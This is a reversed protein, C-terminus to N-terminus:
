APEVAWRLSREVARRWGAVLRAREQESMTPEFRRELSWTAAIEEQGSWVGIGLGALFAAGAATTETVVPREVPVGLLDAQFALLDDNRAAGGDVRLVSLRGGADEDMGAAVDRVQYAISDVTARAVHSLGTGRTIGILLGRAAPDWWPAGLGTFAPVLYVGDDHGVGAALREVDAAADIARLGDRLWQVAAGAIFVSGELAYHAAQDDALRWLVTSLSGGDSAVPSTGANRLLFAGTGYTNKADGMAFCAQGFTAAQQDGAIGAIPIARSFLVPDTEAVIGSSSVVRPLVAMPVDFVECLWPDWALRTIDLLSTRSANSVDTLHSRGGTLRWVLWSDITGACLEGAVARARLDPASDLIHAIKTASFYADVPLGTLSRIRPAHGAAKLADCRPATIRSQWVIAPAVPRGTAREWVVSTERQDTIGIAAIRAAGGVATIVDRACALQGQWIEEPDHEVHGPSPLHQTLERQATAVPRGTRDFAIARSSTTGQDLALVLGDARGVSV